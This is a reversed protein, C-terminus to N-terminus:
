ARLQNFALNFPQEKQARINQQTLAQELEIESEPLSPARMIEAVLQLIEPFDQSVTKLSIAFYDNSTEANLGAGVSEIKEAI